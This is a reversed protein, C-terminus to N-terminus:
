KSNAQQQQQQEKLKAATTAAAADAPQEDRQYFLLVVKAGNEPESAELAMPTARSSSRPHEVREDDLCTWAAGAGAGAGKWSFSSPLSSEALVYAFYHGSRATPGRHFVAARLSYRTPCPSLTRDLPKGFHKVLGLKALDITSEFNVAIECRTGDAQARNIHLVLISPLRLYQASCSSSGVQGCKSNPCRYGEPAPNEERLLDKLPLNTPPSAQGGSLWSGLQSLQGLQGFWGGESRSLNLKIEEIFFPEAGSACFRGCKHCKTCALRQGEFLSSLAHSHMRTASLAWQVMSYEYLLNSLNQKARTASAADLMAGSAKVLATLEKELGELRELTEKDVPGSNRPSAPPEGALPKGGLCDLLLSLFEHTDQQRQDRAEVQILKEGDHAPLANMAHLQFDSLAKWAVPRGKSEAVQMAYLLRALAGELDSAPKKLSATFANAFGPIHRLCQLAAIWFCDAGRNPLGVPREVLIQADEPIEDESVEEKVREYLADTRGILAQISGRQTELEAICRKLHEIDEACQMDAQLLDNKRRALVDLSCLGHKRQVDASDVEGRSEELNVCEEHSPQDEALPAGEPTTTARDLPRADQLGSDHLEVGISQLGLSCLHLEVAAEASSALDEAKDQSRSEVTSFELQHVAVKSTDDAPTETEVIQLPAKEQSTHADCQSIPADSLVEAQLDVNVATDSASKHDANTDVSQASVQPPAMDQSTHGQLTVGSGGDQLSHECASSDAKGELSM